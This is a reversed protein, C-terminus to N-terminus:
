ALSLGASSRSTAWCPIFVSTAHGCRGGLPMPVHRSDAWCGKAALACDRWKCTYTNRPWPTGERLPRPGPTEALGQAPRKQAQSLEKSQSPATANLAATPWTEAPSLHRRAGHRSEIQRVMVPVPMETQMKQRAKAPTGCWRKDCQEGRTRAFFCELYQGECQHKRTTGVVQGSPPDTVFRRTRMTSATCEAREPRTSPETRSSQPHRTGLRKRAVDIPM